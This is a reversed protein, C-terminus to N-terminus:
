IYELINHGINKFLLDERSCLMLRFNLDLTVTIENRKLMTTYKLLKHNEDVMLYTVNKAQSKKSERIRQEVSDSIFWLVNLLGMQSCKSTM